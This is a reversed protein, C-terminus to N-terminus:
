GSMTGSVGRIPSTDPLTVLTNIGKGALLRVARAAVRERGLGYGPLTWIRRPSSARQCPTSCAMPACSRRFRSDVVRQLMGSPQGSREIRRRKRCTRWRGPWVTPESTRSTVGRASLRIANRATHPFVCPPSTRPGSCPALTICRAMTSFSGPSLTQFRRPL